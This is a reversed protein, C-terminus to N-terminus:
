TLATPLLHPNEALLRDRRDKVVDHCTLEWLLRMQIQLLVLKYVM